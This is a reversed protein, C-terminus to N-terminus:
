LQPEEVCSEGTSYGIVRGRADEDLGYSRVV